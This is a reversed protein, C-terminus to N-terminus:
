FEEAKSSFGGFLLSLMGYCLVIKDLFIVGFLLVSACPMASVDNAGSFNEPPGFQCRQISNYLGYFSSYKEILTREGEDFAIFLWIARKKKSKKKEISRLILTCDLLESVCAITPTIKITSDRFAVETAGFSIDCFTKSSEGGEGRRDGM